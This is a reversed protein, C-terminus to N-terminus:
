DEYHDNVGVLCVMVFFSAYGFLNFPNVNPKPINTPNIIYIFMILSSILQFQCNLFNVGLILPCNLFPWSLQFIVLNLSKMGLKLDMSM